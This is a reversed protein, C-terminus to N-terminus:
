RPMGAPCTLGAPRDGTFFLTMGDVSGLGPGEIAVAMTINVVAGIAVAAATALRYRRIVPLRAAM